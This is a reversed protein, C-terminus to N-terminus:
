RRASAGRGGTARADRGAPRAGRRRREAGRRGGHACGWATTCGTCRASSPSRRTAVAWRRRARQQQQLNSASASAAAAATTAAASAASAAASAPPPPPPRSPPAPRPPPSPVQVSPPLEPNLPANPDLAALIKLVEDIMGLAEPLLVLTSKVLQQTVTVFLPSCCVGVSTHQHRMRLESEAFRWPTAIAIHVGVITPEVCVDYGQTKVNYAKLELPLHIHLRLRSGDRRLALYLLATQVHLLRLPMAPGLVHNCLM